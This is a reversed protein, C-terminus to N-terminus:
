CTETLICPVRGKQEGRCTARSYDDVFLLFIDLMVVQFVAEGEYRERKHLRPLPNRSRRSSMSKKEEELIGIEKGHLLIELFSM